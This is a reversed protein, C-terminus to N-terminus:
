APLAETVNPAASRSRNQVVVSANLTWFPPRRLVGAGAVQLAAAHEPVGAQRRENRLRGDWSRRRGFRRAM